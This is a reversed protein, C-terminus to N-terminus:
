QCGGGSITSRDPSCTIISFGHHPKNASHASAFLGVLITAFLFLRLMM